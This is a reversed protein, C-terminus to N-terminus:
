WLVKLGHAQYERFAPDRSIFVMHRNIAQWALMRDFPDRHEGRPLQHYSSAEGAGLPLLNYGMQRAADPLEEPLVNALEIKGLAYKLSIEWFTVASVAVDSKVDTMADLATKTLKRPSFASWLFCHTDLLYTM